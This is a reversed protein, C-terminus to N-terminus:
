EDFSPPSYSSDFTAAPASEAAPAPDSAPVPEPTSPTSPAGGAQDGTAAAQKDIMDGAKQGFKMIKNAYKGGTQENVAVGAADVAEHLQDAHEAVAEKAQNALNKFKDGFGM